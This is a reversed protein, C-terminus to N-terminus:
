DQSEAQAALAVLPSGHVKKYLIRFVERRQGPDPGTDPGMPAPTIVVFEWYNAYTRWSTEVAGSEGAYRLLTSKADQLSFHLHDVTNYTLNLVLYVYM